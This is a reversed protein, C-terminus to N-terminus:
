TKPKHAHARGFVSIPVPTAQGQQYAWGAIHPQAWGLRGPCLILALFTTFGLEQDCLLKAYTAVDRASPAPIGHPHTHWDGIWVNGSRAYEQDVLQQAHRLDRLFFDPTRVAVPGPGGAHHVEAVGDPHLAGLLIGGTELGDASHVAEAAISTAAEQLLHVRTITGLGANM